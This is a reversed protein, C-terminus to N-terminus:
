EFIWINEIATNFAGAIKQATKISPMTQGKIIKYLASYTVGTKVSLWRVNEGRMRLNQKILNKMNDSGKRNKFVGFIICIM